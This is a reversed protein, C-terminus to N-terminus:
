SRYDANIDIYGHTLDCTWVRSRGDGVGLDVQLIIERGALHAAVATEDYGAVAGGEACVLTDGFRVALREPELPEGSKGLAMVVRGWNADAGALATKVLPSNAVALGARRASAEDVAGSVAIEVFRQAGEGDRVVLQALELCVEDLARVFDCLRPDDPATIPVHGARRSAILLVTDSTSSDGDVTTCHFSREAARALLPQLVTADLDADTAVFALMTALDPAIMGSGKAIGTLRTEVGEIVAVASAAKAFTDTTLIARACDALGDPALRSVLSPVAAAIANGDLPEGIVGTSAAFIEERTCGLAQAAADVVTAVATEGAPGNAVNASGANVVLGRIRGGSLVHRCWRVPHGPTTSRTLLGAVASGPEAAILAVDDRGRYRLGLALSAGTVGPVPPTSLPADPALPSLPLEKM